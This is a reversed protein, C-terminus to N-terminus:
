GDMMALILCMRGAKPTEQDLRALGSAVSAPLMEVLIAEVETIQSEFHGGQDRRRDGCLAGVVESERNVIPAAVLFKVNLLNANADGEPVRRECSLLYVTIALSPFYGSNPVSNNARCMNCM